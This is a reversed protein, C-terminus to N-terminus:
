LRRGIAIQKLHGCQTCTAPYRSCDGRMSLASIAAAVQVRSLAVGSAVCDVCFCVGPHADLWNKVREKITAGKPAPAKDLAAEAAGSILSSLDDM